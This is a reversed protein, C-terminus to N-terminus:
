FNLPKTPSGRNTPPRPDPAGAGRFGARVPATVERSGCRCILNLQQSQQPFVSTILRWFCKVHLAIARRLWRLPRQTHRDTRWAATNHWFLAIALIVFEESQAAVFVRTKPDTFSKWFNPFPDFRCLACFSLLTPFIAIKSWYYSAKIGFRRTITLTVIGLWYYSIGYVWGKQNVGFDVVKVSRSRRVM